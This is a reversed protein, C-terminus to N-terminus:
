DGQRNYSVGSGGSHAYVVQPGTMHTQVLAPMGDHMPMAYLGGQQAQYHTNQPTEVRPAAAWTQDATSHLAAPREDQTFNHHHQQHQQQHHAFRQQLQMQYQQNQLPTPHLVPHHVPTQQSINHQHHQPQQQLTPPGQQAGTTMHAVNHGDERRNNARGTPQHVYIQQQDKNRLPPPPTILDNHGSTKTGRGKNTSSPPMRNNQQIEDRGQAGYEKNRRNHDKYDKSLHKTNGEKKANKEYQTRQKPKTGTPREGEGVTSKKHYFEQLTEEEVPIDKYTRNSSDMEQLVAEGRINIVRTKGSTNDARRAAAYRHLALARESEQMPYVDGISIGVIRHREMYRKLAIVTERKHYKSNMYIVVARADKRSTSDVNKDAVFIRNIYEMKDVERLFAAAVRTPDTDEPWSWDKKIQQIGSLFIGAECTDTDNGQENNRHEERRRAMKELEAMKKQWEEHRAEAHRQFKKHAINEQALDTLEVSHEQVIDDIRVISAALVDMREVQLNSGVQQQFASARLEDMQQGYMRKTNDMNQAMTELAKKMETVEEELQAIKIPMNHLKMPKKKVTVSYSDSGGEEGSSTTSTSKRGTDTKTNYSNREQTKDRTNTPAPTHPRSTEKDEKKGKHNDDMTNNDDEWNKAPLDEVHSFYDKSSEPSVAGESDALILSGNIAEM